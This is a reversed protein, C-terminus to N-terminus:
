ALHTRTLLTRSPIKLKTFSVYLEVIGNENTMYGGRLFNYGDTKPSSPFGPGDPGAAGSPFPFSFSGTPSVGGSTGSPNGSESPPFGVAAGGFGAYQGQANCSWIEFFVDKAPQCTTTDLV